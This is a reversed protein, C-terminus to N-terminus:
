QVSVSLSTPPNPRSAVVGAAFEYAGLAPVTPRIKGEIDYPLTNLTPTGAGIAPSGSQLHFDSGNTVFKPDSNVTATLLHATFTPSGGGFVLNDAGTMSQCATITDTSACSSGSYAQPGWYPVSNTSYCINNQLFNTTTFGSHIDPYSSGWCSNGNTTYVTNNYWQVAPPSTGAGHASNFDGSLQHHLSDGSGDQGCNWVVNNYILVPGQSPDVTDVLICEEATNHIMNDHIRIDFMIYGTSSNVPSSHVQMGTRGKTNFIQNWGIDTHNADTSPYVGQALRQTTGLNLDHFNNGYCHMHTTMAEEWAAGAGPDVNGNSVDNGIFRYNDGGNFAAASTGRFTMEAFVWKGAPAGDGATFDSTDLGNQTGSGIQIGTAGPYGILADPQADTGHSWAARITLAGNWQGDSTTQQVNSLAYVINGPSTGATQVAHPLTKWPSGFAGSNSDNGTTAVYFISGANVTFPLGNSTGSTTTVVFSGTSCTNTLQVTMVQYWLWATPQQIVKLCNSGNLTVAGGTLFNGYLRVYVGGNSTFTSDSNGSAPGAILDSFFLVPAPTQQGFATTAAFLCTLLTLKFRV